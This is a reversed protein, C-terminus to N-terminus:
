LNGGPRLVNQNSKDGGISADGSQGLPQPVNGAHGADRRVRDSRKSPDLSGTWRAGVGSNMTASIEESTPPKTNLHTAILFCEWFVVFLYVLCGATIIIRAKRISSLSIGECALVVIMVLLFKYIAFGALHWHEMIYVAVGNAEDGHLRFILGTM